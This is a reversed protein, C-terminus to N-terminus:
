RCKILVRLKLLFWYFDGESFNGSLASAKCIIVFTHLQTGCSLVIKASWRCKAAMHEWFDVLCFGVYLISSFWGLELPVTVYLSLPTTNTSHAKARPIRGWLNNFIKVAFFQYNVNLLWPLQIVYTFWSVYWLIFHYRCELSKVTILSTRGTVNQM